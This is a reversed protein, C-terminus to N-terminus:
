IPRLVRRIDARRTDYTELFTNYLYEHGVTTRPAVDIPIRDTMRPELLNITEIEAEENELATLEIQPRQGEELGQFDRVLSAISEPTLSATRASRGLSIQIDFNVGSTQTILRRADALLSTDGLNADLMVDSGKIRIKKYYDANILREIRSNDLIPAFKVMLPIEDTQGVADLYRFRLQTLVHEAQKVSLGYLNSQMVVTNYTNDYLISVFEGIFEDQELLINEKIEGFRKKSPINKDRLKSLQFSYINRVEDYSYSDREVEAFEDGVPVNTGFNLHTMLYELFGSMNWLDATYNQVEEELEDRLLVNAPVLQVEFYNFRVYKRVM